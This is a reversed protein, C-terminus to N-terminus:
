ATASLALSLKWEEGLASLVGNLMVEQYVSVVLSVVTKILVVAV